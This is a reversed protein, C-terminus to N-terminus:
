SKPPVVVAGNMLASSDIAPVIVGSSSNTLYRIFAPTEVPKSNLANMYGLASLLVANSALSLVLIKKTKMNTLNVAWIAALRGRSGLEM